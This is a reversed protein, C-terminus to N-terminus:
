QFKQKVFTLAIDIEINQDHTVSFEWSSSKQMEKNKKGEGDGVVLSNQNQRTTNPQYINM